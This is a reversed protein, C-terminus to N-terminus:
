DGSFHMFLHYPLSNSDMTERPAAGPRRQQFVATPPSEYSQATFAM